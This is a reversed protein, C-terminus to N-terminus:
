RGPRKVELFDGGTGRYLSPKSPWSEIGQLPLIMRKEVADLDAKSCLWGGTWHTSLAIVPLPYLSQSTFSLARRWSTGLDFIISNYRWEGM